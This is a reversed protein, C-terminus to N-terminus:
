MKKFTNDLVGNIFAVSKEDSYIKTLELAENIAVKEPVDELYLMEAVALRLITVNVKSIRDLKWNVLAVTIKEDIIEKNKEVVELINKIYEVDITKLKMEYEEIFHEITEELTNKSLTMGFLLEMAIERSKKRNM